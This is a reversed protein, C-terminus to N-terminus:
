EKIREVNDCTKVNSSHFQSHLLRTKLYESELCEGHEVNEKKGNLPHKETQIKNERETSNLTSSKKRRQLFNMGVTVGSHGSKGETCKELNKRVLEEVM